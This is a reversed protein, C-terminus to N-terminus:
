PAAGTKSEIKKLVELSKEAAAATREAPDRNGRQGYAAEFADGVSISQFVRSATRAAEQAMAVSEAAAKTTNAEPKKEPEVFQARWAEVTKQFWDEDQISPADGALPEVKSMRRQVEAIIDSAEIVQATAAQKAAVDEETPFLVKQLGQLKDLGEDRLRTAVALKEPDTGSRLTDRDAIDRGARDFQTRIEAQKKTFEAAQKLAAESQANAAKVGNDLELKKAILIERDLRAVENQLQSMRLARADDQDNQVGLLGSNTMGIMHETTGRLWGPVNRALKTGIGAGDMERQISRIEALIDERMKESNVRIEVATEVSGTERAKRFKAGFDIAHKSMRTFDRDTADAFDRWVAAADEISRKLAQGVMVAGGVAAAFLGGFSKTLAGLGPINNAISSLEDKLSKVFTKGADSFKQIDGKASDLGAKVRNEGIIRVILDKM